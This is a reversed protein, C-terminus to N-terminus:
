PILISFDYSSLKKLKWYIRRRSVEHLLQELKMLSWRVHQVVSEVNGDGNRRCWEKVALFIDLEPAFFSDRSLIACLSDKSVQLFSPHALLEKANRDIFTYCLQALNELNFLRAADLIKCCNSM